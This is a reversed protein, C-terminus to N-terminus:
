KLLGNRHRLSGGTRRSKTACGCAGHGLSSRSVIIARKTLPSPAALVRVDRDGRTPSRRIRVIVSVMVRVRARARVRVRAKVRVSVGVRVRVGPLHVGANVGRGRPARLLSPHQVVRAHVDQRGGHVGGHRPPPAHARRSGGCLREGREGRRERLHAPSFTSLPCLGSGPEVFPSVAHGHRARGQITHVEQPAGAALSPRRSSRPDHPPQRGPGTPAGRRLASRRPGSETWQRQCVQM